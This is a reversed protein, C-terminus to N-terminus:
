YKLWLLSIITLSNVLVLLLFIRQYTEIWFVLNEEIVVIIIKM